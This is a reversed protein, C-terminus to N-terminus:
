AAKFRCMEPNVGEAAQDVDIPWGAEKLIKFHLKPNDVAARYWFVTVDVKFAKLNGITSAIMSEFQDRTYMVTGLMAREHSQTIEDYDRLMFVCKDGHRAHGTIGPAIMKILSGENADRFKPDNFDHPDLEYLSENIKYGAEEEMKAILSDRETDFLANMGGDRLCGMMM